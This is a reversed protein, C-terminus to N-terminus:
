NPWLIYEDAKAVTQDLTKDIVIPSILSHPWLSPVGNAHHAALLAKL